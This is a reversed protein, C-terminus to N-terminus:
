RRLDHSQHQLKNNLIDEHNINKFKLFQLNKNNQQKKQLMASVSYKQQNYFIKLLHQDKTQFKHM